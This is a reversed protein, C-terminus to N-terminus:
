EQNECMPSHDDNGAEEWVIYGEIEDFAMKLIIMKQFKEGLLHSILLKRLEEVKLLILYICSIKTM